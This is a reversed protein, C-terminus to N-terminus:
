KDVVLSVEDEPKQWVSHQARNNVLFSTPKGELKLIVRLKPLPESGQGENKIM